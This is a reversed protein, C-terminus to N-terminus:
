QITGQLYAIPMKSLGCVPFRLTFAWVAAWVLNALLYCIAERVIIRWWL